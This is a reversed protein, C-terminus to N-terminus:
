LVPHLVAEVTKLLYRSDSLVREKAVIETAGRLKLRDANSAPTTALIIVPIGDIGPHHKLEVLFPRGHIDPVLADLVIVDPVRNRVLRLAQEGGQASFEEYGAHTLAWENIKRELQAEDILLVTAKM